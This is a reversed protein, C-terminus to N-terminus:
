MSGQDVKVGGWQDIKVGGKVGKSQLQTDIATLFDIFDQMAARVHTTTVAFPIKARPNFGNKDIPEPLILAAM